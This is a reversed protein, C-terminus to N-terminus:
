CSRAWGQTPLTGLFTAQIGNFPSSGPSFQRKEGRHPHIWTNLPLPDAQRQVWRRPSNSTTDRSQNNGPDTLLAFGRNQLTRHDRLQVMEAQKQKVQGAIERIRLLSWISDQQQKSISDETIYADLSKSYRMCRQGGFSGTAQCYVDSVGRCHKINHHAQSGAGILSFRHVEVTTGEPYCYM